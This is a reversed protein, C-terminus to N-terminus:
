RSQVGGVKSSDHRSATWQSVYLVRHGWRWLWAICQMTLQYFLSLSLSLSSLSFKQSFCSVALPIRGIVIPASRKSPNYIIKLIFYHSATAPPRFKGFASILFQQSHTDRSSFCFCFFISRSKMRWSYQFCFTYVAPSTIVANDRMHVAARTPTRITTCPNMSLRLVSNRTSTNQL